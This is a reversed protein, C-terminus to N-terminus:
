DWDANRYKELLEDLLPKVWDKVWRSKLVLRVNSM